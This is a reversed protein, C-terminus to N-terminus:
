STFIFVSGSRGDTWSIRVTQSVKKKKNMCGRPQGTSAHVLKSEDSLSKIGCINKGM